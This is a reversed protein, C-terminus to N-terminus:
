VDPHAALTDLLREACGGRPGRGVGVGGGAAARVAASVVALASSNLVQVSWALAVGLCVALVAVAQRLPHHAWDRWMLPALRWAMTLASSM